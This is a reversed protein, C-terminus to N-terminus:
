LQLNINLNCRLNINNNLNFILLDILYLIGTKDWYRDPPIM